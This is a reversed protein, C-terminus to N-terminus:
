ILEINCNGILFSLFSAKIWNYRKAYGKSTVFNHCEGFKGTYWQMSNKDKILYKM